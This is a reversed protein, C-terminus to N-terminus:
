LQGISPPTFSNLKKTDVEKIESYKDGNKEVVYLKKNSNVLNSNLPVLESKDKFNVKILTPPMPPAFQSEQPPNKAFIEVDGVNQISQLNNNDIFATIKQSEENLNDGNVLHTVKEERKVEREVSDGSKESVANKVSTVPASPVSKEVIHKVKVEKKEAQKPQSSTLPNSVEESPMLFYLGAILVIVGGGILYKKVKEGRFM